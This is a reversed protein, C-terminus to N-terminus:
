SHLLGTCIFQRTLQHTHNETSELREGNKVGDINGQQKVLEMGLRIGLQKVEGRFRM